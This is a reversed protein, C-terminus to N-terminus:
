TADLPAVTPDYDAWGKEAYWLALQRTAENEIDAEKQAETDGAQTAVCVGDVKVLRGSQYLTRKWAIWDELYVIKPPNRAELASVRKDLARM